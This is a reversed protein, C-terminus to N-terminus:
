TRIEDFAFSYDWTLPGTRTYKFSDQVFRGTVDEGDISITFATLTGKKTGFFTHVASMEDSKRNAFTLQFKRLKQSHVLRTQDFGNEFESRLVSYNPSGEYNFDPKYAFDAM